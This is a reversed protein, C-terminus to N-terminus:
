TFIRLLTFCACAVVVVKPILAQNFARDNLLACATLAAIGVPLLAIVQWWPRHLGLCFALPACLVCFACNLVMLSARRLQVSNLGLALNMPMAPTHLTRLEISLAALSLVLPPLAVVLQVAPMAAAELRTQRLVADLAVPLLACLLLRVHQTYQKASFLYRANIRALNWEARGRGHLRLFGPLRLAGRGAVRPTRAMLAIGLIGGAAAMLALIWPSAGAGTAALGAMDAAVCLAGRRTDQLVLCQLVPLQGALAVVAAIAALSPGGRAIGLSLLAAAFPLLLPLDTAAFVALDVWRARGSVKPLSRLHQWGPGGLLARAQLGTWMWALVLILFWCGASLWFHNGEVVKLVPAGLLRIQDPIPMMAPSVAFLTLLVAQWRRELLRYSNSSFFRLRWWFLQAFLTM